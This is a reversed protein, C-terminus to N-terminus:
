DIREPVAVDLLGRVAQIVEGSGPVFADELEPAAGVPAFPAGVRAIPAVLSSHAAAQLRATVEAGFGGTTVAEHAVVVRGTRHSSELAPELDLPALWRLDIVECEIGEGSLIAAAELVPHVMRSYSIITVDDGRRRVISGSAPEGGTVEGKMWYLGRHEVYVVPNDDAIAAELLKCADGPFAPAVVKLGPTHAFWAELSQSHHAGFRGGVGGQVRITLPVRLLGGTMFGLKAAHNVLQDMALTTFDAFMIEVVPRLGTTAAGTAMGMVTAESIPTDLIRAEGFEDLLGKTAGFPGGFRVDEGLVIVSPDSLMSSRLGQRVAEIYRIRGVM